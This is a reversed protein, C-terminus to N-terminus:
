GMWFPLNKQEWLEKKKAATYRPSIALGACLGSQLISQIEQGVGSSDITATFTGNTNMKAEGIVFGDFKLPIVIRNEEDHCRCGIGGCGIGRHQSWCGCM